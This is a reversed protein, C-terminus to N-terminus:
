QIKDVYLGNWLDIVVDRADNVSKQTPIYHGDDDSEYEEASSYVDIDAAITVNQKDSKVWGHHKCEVTWTEDEFYIEPDNGCFPCPRLEKAEHESKEKSGNFWEDLYALLVEGNDGDGGSKFCFGDNGYKYDMEEIFKYLDISKPNHDNVAFGLTEIGSM